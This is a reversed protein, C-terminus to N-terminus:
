LKFRDCVAGDCNKIYRQKDYKERKLEKVIRSTEFDRNKIRTIIEWNPYSLRIVYYNVYEICSFVFWFVTMVFYTSRVKGMNVFMIVLGLFLLILNLYRFLEYVRPIRNIAKKKIKQLLLFWYASGQLLIFSCVSLHYIVSVSYMKLEVVVIIWFLLVSVLEGSYLSKLKKEM